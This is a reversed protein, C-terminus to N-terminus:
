GVAVLEEAVVRGGGGLEGRRCGRRAGRVGRLRPGRPVGAPVAVWRRPLGREPLPLVQLLPAAGRHAEGGPAAGLRAPRLHRYALAPFRLVPLGGLQMRLALWMESNVGHEFKPTGAEVPGNQDVVEGFWDEAMGTLVADWDDM